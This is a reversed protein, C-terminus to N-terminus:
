EKDKEDQDSETEEGAEKLKGMLEAYREPGLCERAAKCWQFCSPVQKKYIVTKCQPCRLRMEDSFFEVLKGCKPCPHYSVTLRRLDQGPCRFM